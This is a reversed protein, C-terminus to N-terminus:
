NVGKPEVGTFGESKSGSKRSETDISRTRSYNKYFRSKEHICILKDRCFISLHETNDGISILEDLLLRTKGYTGISSKLSNKVM